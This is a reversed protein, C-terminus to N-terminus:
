YKPKNGTKKVLDRLPLIYFLSKDTHGQVFDEAKESGIEEDSILMM